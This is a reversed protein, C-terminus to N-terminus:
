DDEDEDEDEDESGLSCENYEESAERIEKPSLDRDSFIFGYYDSGEVMPDEYVRIGFPALTERLEELVPCSKWDWGLFQPEVAKKPTNM